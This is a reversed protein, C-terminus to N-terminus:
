LPSSRGMSLGGKEKCHLVRYQVIIFAICHEEFVRRHEAFVGSNNLSVAANKLTGPTNELFAATYFFVWNHEVLMRSHVRFVSSHERV